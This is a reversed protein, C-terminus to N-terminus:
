RNSSASSAAAMEEKVRDIAIVLSIVLDSYNEDFVKVNYTSTLKFWEESITAVLQGQLYLSFNMSWFDGKVVMGLNEIRFKSKFLTWEKIIIFQRGDSLEVDFKPLLSWLRKTIHSVMNGNMDLITYRKPIELFSGRVEYHANNEIDKIYFKGGLAWMKQKIHFVKTM